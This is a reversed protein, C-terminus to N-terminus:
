LWDIRRFLLILALSASAMLIAVSVWSGAGPLGRINMGYWGTIVANVAVVGGWAGIAKNIEAQRASLLNLQTDTTLELRRGLSDLDADLADLARHTSDLAAESPDDAGAWLPYLGLLTQRLRRVRRQVDIIRTALRLGETVVNTPTTKHDADIIDAAHAQQSQGLAEVIEDYRDIALDILSLVAALADHPTPGTTVRRAAEAVVDDADASHATCARNGRVSVAILADRGAASPEGDVTPVALV